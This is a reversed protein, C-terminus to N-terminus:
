ASILYVGAVGLVVMVLLALLVGRESEVTEGHYTQGTETKVTEITM